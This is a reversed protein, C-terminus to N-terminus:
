VRLLPHRVCFIRPLQHVPYHLRVHYSLEPVVCRLRDRQRHLYLRGYGDPLPRFLGAEWSVACTRRLEFNRLADPERDACGVGREHDDSCVM